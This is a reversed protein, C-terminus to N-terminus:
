AQRAVFLTQMAELAGLLESRERSFCFRVYGEGHPGFDAGPICGVRGHQILYEALMWSM